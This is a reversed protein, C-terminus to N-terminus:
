AHAYRRRISFGMRAPLVAGVQIPVHGAANGSEKGEAQEDEDGRATACVCGGAGDGLGRDGALGDGGGGDCGGLGIGTGGDGAAVNGRLAHLEGLAHAIVTDLPERVRVRRALEGDIAYSFPEDSSEFLAAHFFAISAHLSRSGGPNVPWLLFAWSCSPARLNAWHMRSLPTLSKGSGVGSEGRM